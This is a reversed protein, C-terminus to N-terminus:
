AAKLDPPSPPLPRATPAASGHTEGRGTIPIKITFTTGHGVKSALTLSGAHREIISRALSLGQGTGRGVEKTTFFPDFVRTCLEDPIGCGTDTVSIIAIGDIAETRITIKGLQETHGRADEIAHAANVILNLFVQNLDGVNCIVPPLDALITEVDAVYKYENRAVVLTTHIAENLDAPAQQESDSVRGFTKMAKVISAVREVGNIMRAFAAPVRERLYELDAADEAVRVQERLEAQELVDATDIIARYREILQELNGVSNRLFHASDGIFQIPTNIEHAIGAALQGVAELRQSIRLELEMREHEAELQKRESIDRLILSIGTVRGDSDIIPASTGSVEVPTGDKGIDTVEIDRLVGDAGRGLLQQREDPERSLLTPAHRGIAETATYGYLQEARANWTAIEANTNLSIIADASSEVIAALRAHEADALMRHTIDLLQTFFTAPQGGADRVVTVAIQMHIVTGDKHIYRKETQYPKNHELIERMADVNEAADDPHTLSAFNVGVLEERTYGLMRALAANVRSFTGDLNTLAMGIPSHEFGGRFREESLRLAREAETRRRVRDIATLGFSVDEALEDVLRLQEADFYGPSAAYVAIAGADVGARKLPFAAASGYGQNLAHIQWPADTNEAALNNYVAHAGTRIATATPLSAQEPLDLRVVARSGNDRDARLGLEEVYGELAGAAAVQEIVGEVPNLLGAWAMRLGGKEVIAKCCAHLLEVEDETRMIAENTAALVRYMSHLREAREQALKRETIDIINGGVRVVRGDEFIPRGITRVWMNEGGPRALGLELDYPEGDAVLRDFAEQIIPESDSDYAVAGQAIGSADNTKKHVGYIRYVEDTWTLRQTDVEYEWGGVKSLQQTRDLLGRMQTLERQARERESIDRAIRAIGVIRGETDRIPADTVSVDLQRGDKHVDHGEIHVPQGGAIVAALLPERESPDRSLLSPAHHGIAEDTSYGYLVAAARNWSHIVGDTDLSIIAEASSQVIAALWSREAEASNRNRAQWLCMSATWVLSALVLLSYVMPDEQLLCVVLYGLVVMCAVALAARVPYSLGAFLLPMFLPLTLPSRPLPDLLAMVLLVGVIATSWTMFFTERWRGAVISESPVVTLLALSSLVSIVALVLIAVRNGADWTQAVYLLIFGSMAFTLWCGTQITALRFRLVAPDALPISKGPWM